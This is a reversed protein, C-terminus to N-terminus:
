MSRVKGGDMHAMFQYVSGCLPMRLGQSVVLVAAHQNCATPCHHDRWEDRWMFFLYLGNEELLLVGENDQCVIAKAVVILRRVVKKICDGGATHHDEAWPFVFTAFPM